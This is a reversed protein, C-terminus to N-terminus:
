EKEKKKLSHFEIKHEEANQSNAFDIECRTCYLHKFLKHKWLDAGRSCKFECGVIECKFPRENDHVAMLHYDVASHSTLGKGCIQCKFAKIKTHKRIHARLRSPAWDIKTCGDAPCMFSNKHKDDYARHLQHRELIHARLDPWSAPQFGCPCYEEFQGVQAFEQMDSSDSQPAQIEPAHYQSEFFLEELSDSEVNSQYILDPPVIRAEGLLEPSDKLDSMEYNLAQFLLLERLQEESSKAPEESECNGGTFAIDMPAIGSQFTEAFYGTQAEPSECWEMANAPSIFSLLILGFRALM